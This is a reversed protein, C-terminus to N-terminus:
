TLSKMSGSCVGFYSLSSSVTFAARTGDFLVETVGTLSTGVITVSSGAQGNAPAFFSIAPTVAFIGSSTAIGGPTAVTLKGTTAGAPVKAAITTASSVTFPAPVGNFQVSNAGTFHTGIITVETGVPGKAPTFGTLTPKTAVTFGTASLATGAANTVSIPGSNAGAPVIGTISTASRVAFEAAM